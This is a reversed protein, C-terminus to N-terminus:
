AEKRLLWVTHGGTQPDESVQRVLSLGVVGFRDLYEAPDLSDHWVPGGAVRGWASGARPGTTLLLFGGPALHTALRPILVRQEDAGLHFFSDWGVIAQFQKPLNLDRMDGEIWTGHPFRERALDLMRPSCDMGTVLHQAALFAEAIPRGSGCGLDLM